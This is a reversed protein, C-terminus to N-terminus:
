IKASAFSILKNGNDNTIEHLSESGITLKCINEKGIMANFDGLIIKPRDVPLTDCMLDLNKYFKNKIDDSKDETPAYCNVLFM